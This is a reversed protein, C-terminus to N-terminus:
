TPGTSGSQALGTSGSWKAVLATAVALAHLDLGEIYSRLSALQPTALLAARVAEPEVGERLLEVLRRQYCRLVDDDM